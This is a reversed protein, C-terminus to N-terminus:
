VCKPQSFIIERAVPDSKYVGGSLKTTRGM